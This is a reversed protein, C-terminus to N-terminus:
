RSECGCSQRIVLSAPLPKNTLPRGEIMDILMEAAQRGTDFFPNDVTTLPPNTYKTMKENNDFGIIACDEPVRKGSTHLALMAAVAMNDTVAFIASFDLSKCLDLTTNYAWTQSRDGLVILSPDAAIGANELAARYGKERNTAWRQDKVGLLAIRSHGHQILHRVADEAGKQDEIDAVIEVHERPFADALAVVPIGEEKAEQALDRLMPYTDPTSVGTLLVGDAQGSRLLETYALFGAAADMTCMGISYGSPVPYAETGRLREALNEDWLDFAVMLVTHSRGTALAKAAANPRYGLAKASELVSQRTAESIPFANPSNNLVLSVTSKSVNAARAIELLTVRKRKSSDVNNAM